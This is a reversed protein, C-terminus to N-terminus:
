IWSACIAAISGLAIIYHGAYNIFSFKIHTLHDLHSWGGHNTIWLSLRDILFKEIISKLLLIDCSSHKCKCTQLFCKTFTFIVVIKGWNIDSYEGITSNIVLYFHNSYACMGDQISLRNMESQVSLQISNNMMSKLNCYISNLPNDPIIENQIEYIYCNLIHSLIEDTRSLSKM